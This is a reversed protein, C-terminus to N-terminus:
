FLLVERSFGYWFIITYSFDIAMMAPTVNLHSQNMAGTSAIVMSLNHDLILLSFMLFMRKAVAASHSLSIAVLGIMGNYNTWGVFGALVVMFLCPVTWHSNLIGLQTVFTTFHCGLLGGLVCGWANMLSVGLANQTFAIALM